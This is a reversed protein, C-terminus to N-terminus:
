IRNSIQSNTYRTFYLRVIEFEKNEFIKINISIFIFVNDFKIENM